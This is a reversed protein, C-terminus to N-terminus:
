VFLGNWLTTLCSEYLFFQVSEDFHGFLMVKNYLNSMHRKPKNKKYFDKTKM